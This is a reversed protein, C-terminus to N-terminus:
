HYAPDYTGSILAYTAALSRSSLYIDIAKNGVGGLLMKVSM